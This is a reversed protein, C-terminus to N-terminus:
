KCIERDSVAIQVAQNREATIADADGALRILDDRTAQPLECTAAPEPKAALAGPAAPGSGGSGAGAPTCTSKWRLRFATGARSAALAKDRENEVETMDHAYRATAANVDEASKKELKRYKDTLELLKANASAVQQTERAQWSATTESVGRMYARSDISRFLGYLAGLIALAGAFYALLKIQM